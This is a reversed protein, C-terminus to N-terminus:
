SPNILSTLVHDEWKGNILLYERARGEVEFGLRELLRASRGNHPLYNAMIRHLGIESFVFDCCPRLAEEMYGNGEHRQALAYGLHCSMFTGRVINTFNCAGLVESESKDLIAISMSLGQQYERRLSQLQLSWYNVTFFEPRRKPEWKELHDRNEVRFRLMKESENPELLRLVLRDTTFCPFDLTRNM